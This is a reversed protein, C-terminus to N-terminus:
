RGWGPVPRFCGSHAAAILSNDGQKTAKVRNGKKDRKVEARFKYPTPPLPPIPPRPRPWSQGYIEVEAPLPPPPPLPPSGPGGHIAAVAPCAFICLLAAITCGKVMTRGKVM